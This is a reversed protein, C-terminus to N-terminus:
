LCVYIGNISRWVVSSIQWKRFDEVSWGIVNVNDNIVELWYRFMRYCVVIQLWRLMPAVLRLVNEIGHKGFEPESEKHKWPDNVHAADEYLRSSDLLVWGLTFSTTEGLKSRSSLCHFRSNETVWGFNKWRGCYGNSPLGIFNTERPLYIWIRDTRSISAILSNENYVRNLPKM